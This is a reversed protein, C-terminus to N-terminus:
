TCHKKRRVIVALLTATMLLPLALFSLHEPTIDIKHTSHTYAFYIWRHTGNDYLTYNQSIVPTLGDDIVVKYPTSMLTKKICVRCFGCTQTVSSESVYIRITSNSEFYDFHEITSNSIVDVYMGLSTNFSSFMGMLPYNDINGMVFQFPLDGIWDKNSDPGDYTSWYNGGSPYGNDWYELFVGIYGLEKLNHLFNNHYIHSYSSDELGIGWQNYAIDNAVIYNTSGSLGIGAAHNLKINNGYISNDNSHDLQIGTPNDTINNESISNQNSSLTLGIGYNLNNSDINNRFISNKSASGLWIGKGNETVSNGFVSNDQSESIGIGHVTNANITNDFVKNNNSSGYIGIGTWSSATIINGFISNYSSRTLYIGHQNDSMNSGYVKSGFSYNLFVAENFRNIKMNQIAINSRETLDLGIGDGAGTITYGTGDIVVNDREVVISDNINDTFTYTINDVTTIPATPPDISGDARIYITGSDGKVLPVNLVASFVAVFLVFVVWVGSVLGARFRGLVKVRRLLLIVHLWSM